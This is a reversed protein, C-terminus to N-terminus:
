HSSRYRRLPILGLLVTGGALLMSLLLSYAGRYGSWSQWMSTALSDYQGKGGSVGHVILDSLNTLSVALAALCLAGLFAVALTAMSYRFRTREQELLM